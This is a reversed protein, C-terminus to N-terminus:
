RPGDSTATADDHGRGIVHLTVPEPTAVTSAALAITAAGLVGRILSRRLVAALM